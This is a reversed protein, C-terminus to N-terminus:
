FGEYIKQFSRASLEDAVQYSRRPAYSGDHQGFLAAPSQQVHSIIADPHLGSDGGEQLDAFVLQLKQWEGYFYEQLLPIIQSRFVYELNALTKAQMFYSHGILHDRDFLYEIRQNMVDLLRRLDISGDETEIAGLIPQLLDPDARLEKFVFRRRLAYDMLAISRDATNMTGILHLNDPVGFPEGDSGGYALRVRADGEWKKRDPSWRLRKDPEILTILEGFVSAVNARNIEDIFLAHKCDPAKLARAVAGKFVGDVVEYRVVSGKGPDTTDIVPRLGEVFDEYSYSPHFSVLTWNGERFMPAYHRLLRYTKGTGPPGALILNLPVDPDNGPPDDIIAPGIPGPEIKGHGGSAVWAFGHIDIQDRPKWDALGEAVNNTVALLREYEALTLPKGKGLSREGILKLFDNCAAPRIFYHRAPDWFFLFYTALMKVNGAALKTETLWQLLRAFPPKWDDPGTARLCDRTHLLYTSWRGPTALADKIPALARWDFFNTLDFLPLLLNRAEDDGAAVANGDVFPTLAKRIERSAERKYRDEGDAYQPPANEFSEFDPFWHLFIRRAEDLNVASPSQDSLYAARSLAVFDSGLMARVAGVLNRYASFSSDALEIGRDELYALSRRDAPMFEDPRMWFLGSTLKAIAVTHIRVCRDFANGDVGALGGRVVQKALNWLAPIDEPNRTDVYPFFWSSMPNLIPIADFDVPVQSSLRFETKIRELIERRNEDKTGRNFSAFFTFPDIEALPQEREEAAQDTLGIVVLGSEDMRRLLEILEGQKHEYDLLVTALERYIPIWSFSAM